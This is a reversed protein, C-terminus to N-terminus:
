EVLELEDPGHPTYQLHLLQNITGADYRVHKGRVFVVPTSTNKVANAYFEHVVTMAAAKPHKCFMQWGWSEIMRHYYQVRYNEVDLDFGQEKLGSRRTVSDNFRAEVEASVFRTKDFKSSSSGRPRKSAVAKKPM